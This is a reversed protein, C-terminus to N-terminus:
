MFDQTSNKGFNILRPPQFLFTRAPFNQFFENAPAPPRRNPVLSYTYSKLLMARLPLLPATGQVAGSSGKLAINNVSMEEIIIYVPM